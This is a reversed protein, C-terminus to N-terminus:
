NGRILHTDIKGETDRKWKCTRESVKEGVQQRKNGKKRGDERRM